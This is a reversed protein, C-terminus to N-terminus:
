VVSKRDRSWRFTPAIPMPTTPPLLSDKSGRGAGVSGRLGAAARLDDIRIHKSRTALRAVFGPKVDGITVIPGNEGALSVSLGQEALVAAILRAERLSSGSSMAGVDDCRVELHRGSGTVTGSLHETQGGEASSREMSFTLDADINFRHAM